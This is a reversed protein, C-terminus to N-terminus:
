AIVQNHALTIADKIKSVYKSFISIAEISKGEDQWNILLNQRKPIDIIRITKTDISFAVNNGIKCEITNKSVTLIATKNQYKVEFSTSEDM